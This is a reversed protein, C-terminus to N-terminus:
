SKGTMKQVVPNDKSGGKSQIAVGFLKRSKREGDESTRSGEDIKM